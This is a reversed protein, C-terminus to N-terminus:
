GEKARELARGICRKVLVKCAERRYESSSRVDSIPKIEESAAQAAEVILAENVRRGRLLGEANAARMTTPAVSGLAIRVDSCVDDEVLTLRVAVNVLAIDVSSRGIKEFATGTRPPQPPISIEILMENEKMVNERVSVFFEELPVDRKMRLSAIKVSSGLVILPTAMDASPVSTCLNGGITALNRVNKHGFQNAVEALVPCHGKIKGSTRISELTTLSGIRLGGGDGEIYDLPLSTIDVLCEVEPRKVLLDTAGAIIRARGGLKSLLSVAEDVSDPKHYESPRFVGTM